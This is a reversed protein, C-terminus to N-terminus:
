SHIEYATKQKIRLHTDAPAGEVEDEKDIDQWFKAEEDGEGADGSSRFLM